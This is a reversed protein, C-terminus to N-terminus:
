LIEIFNRDFCAQDVLCGFWLTYYAFVCFMFLFLIEFFLKIM